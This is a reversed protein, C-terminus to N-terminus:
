KLYGKNRLHQQIDAASFGIKEAVREAHSERSIGEKLKHTPRHGDFEVQLCQGRGESKFRDVLAHNHTVLITNNGITHFGDLIIYSQQMKEEYTTGEALEDLVVLSKPTAAYFVEKTRKMETGFRGEEDQLSDFRPAQYAIWDAINMQAESAVVPAGIQGLIQNQIVSKCSTTKGGSNPGTILTLRQGNLHVDNPVYDQNAKAQIPNRMDRAIFYHAPGDTVAPITTAHPLNKSFEYHSLVEDLKGVAEMAFILSEDNRMRKTIPKRVTKDDVYSKAKTGYLMGAITLGACWNTATVAEQGKPIWGANTGVAIGVMAAFPSLTGITFMGPRFKFRPTLWGTEKASKLGGLTRYLGGDMLDYAPSDGFSKIDHLLVRLYETEPEPINKAAKVIDRGGRRGERLERYYRFSGSDLGDNYLLMFCNEFKQVAGLYEAVANRFVDNSAMERLAEQKAHILELSTPPRILSRFLTAEGVGTQTRKVANHLDGIQVLYLTENDLVTQPSEFLNTQAVALEPSYREARLVSSRKGKPLLTQYTRHVTEALAM